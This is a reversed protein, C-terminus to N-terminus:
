RSSSLNQRLQEVLEGKLADAFMLFGSAFSLFGIGAVIISLTGGDSTPVYVLAALGIWLLATGSLKMTTFKTKIFTLSNNM